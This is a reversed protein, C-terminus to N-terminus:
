PFRTNILVYEEITPCAHYLKMKSTRDKRETSPSLVEVVLVAIGEKGDHYLLTM